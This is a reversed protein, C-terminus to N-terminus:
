VITLKRVFLLRVLCLSKRDVQILEQKLQLALPTVAYSVLFWFSLHGFWELGVAGPWLQNATTGYLYEILFVISSM